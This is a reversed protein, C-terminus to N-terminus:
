SSVAAQASSSQAIVVRDRGEHKARYLAEDARKLLLETRDEPGDYAAVGVSITIMAPLNEQGEIYLRKLLNRIEDARIAAQGVTCEPFLVLFEEGGYRCALDEARTNQVLVEAVLRLAEDGAPHGFSDNYRKFHDIDLLMISLSRERRRARHVERELSEQMHRRNYLGTLPDRIAQIRLNERLDLSAITLALHEALSYALQIQRSFGRNASSYENASSSAIECITLMGLAEGNAVLPVTEPQRVQYCASNTESSLGCERAVNGMESSCTWDAVTVAHTRSLDFVALSGSTEPLLRPLWEPILLFVEERSSCGHVSSTFQSVHALSSAEARAEELLDAIRNNAVTLDEQARTRQAIEKQQAFQTLALRVTLIFLSALVVIEILVMGHEPRWRDTLNHIIVLIGVLVLNKGILRLFSAAEVETVDEVPPRWTIAAMGAAAYPLAWGLDWWASLVLLRRADFWSGVVTVLACVLVFVGLRLFLDRDHKAGTQLRILVAVCLVVSEINGLDLNRLLADAPVMRQLPLYFFAYFALCTVIAVQAFDLYIESRRTPGRDSAPLFLMMLIPTGYLCYLVRWTLESVLNTNLAASTLTITAPILLVILTILFMLWFLSATNQSRRFAIWACNLALLNELLLGVESICTGERGTGFLLYGAAQMAILIAFLGAVFRPQCVLSARSGVAGIDHVPVPTDMQTAM